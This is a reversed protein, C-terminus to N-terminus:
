KKRDDKIEKIFQQVDKSTFIKERALFDDKGYKIVFDDPDVGIPLEIHSIDDFIKFSNTAVVAKRLAKQGSMNKDFDFCFCINTCYRAFCGIHRLSLTTGMMSVVNKIGYQYLILADMQGEVVYVKNQKLIENKAKSLLFLHQSKQFISNWWSTGDEIFSKTALVVPGNYKNFVPVIIKNLIKYSYDSEPDKIDMHRISLPLDYNSPCFGISHEMISECTLGRRSCIYENVNKYFCNAMSSKLIAHCGNIFLNLDDM